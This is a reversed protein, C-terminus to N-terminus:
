RLAGSRYRPHSGSQNVGPVLTARLSSTSRRVSSRGAGAPFRAWRVPPAVSLRQDVHLMGFCLPEGHSMLLVRGADFGAVSAGIGAVVAGGSAQLFVIDLHHRAADPEVNVTGGDTPEGGTIHRPAALEGLLGAPNARFDALDAAVFAGLMLVRVTLLAGLRALAASLLASAHSAGTGSCHSQREFLGLAVIGIRHSGKATRDKGPNRQESDEESLECHRSVSARRQRVRRTFRRLSRTVGGSRGAGFHGGMRVRPKIRLRVKAVLVASLVPLGGFRPEDGGNVLRKDRGENKPFGM